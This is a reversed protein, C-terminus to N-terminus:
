DRCSSKVSTMCVSRYHRAMDAQRNLSKGCGPFPCIVRIPVDSHVKTHELLEVVEYFRKRCKKCRLEKRTTTSKRPRPARIEKGQSSETEAQNEDTSASNQVSENTGIVAVSRTSSDDSLGSHELSSESEHPSASTSQCCSEQCSLPSDTNTIQSNYTATAHYQM